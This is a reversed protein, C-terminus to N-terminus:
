LKITSAGTGIAVTSQCPRATNPIPKLSLVWVMARPLVPCNPHQSGFIEGGSGGRLVALALDRVQRHTALRELWAKLWTPLQYAQPGAFVILDADAAEKLAEDAAVPLRLVDVRWPKVNSPGDLEARHAAHLLTAVATTASSFNDYIILANM